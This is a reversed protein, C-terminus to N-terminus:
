GLWRMVFTHMPVVTEQMESSLVSPGKPADIMRITVFLNRNNQVAHFLIQAILYLYQHLLFQHLVHKRLM